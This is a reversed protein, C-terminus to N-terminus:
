SRSIVCDQVGRLTELDAESFAKDHEQEFGMLKERARGAGLAYGLMEGAAGACLTLFVPLTANWLVRRGLEARRAEELVRLFRLLPLIPSGATYVARKCFGWGFAREVAFVRSALFYERLAPGLSAYNLHCAVASPEQFLRYGKSLLDQHLVAEAELMEALGPGYDLLLDRRYCSHNAPLHRIEDEPRARMYPGYYVLFCGWSAACTPNANRVVPGVVAFDDRGHAEMLSEAWFEDPFTHDELFAVLPARAARVGAAKAEGATKLPGAEVIRCCVLSKLMESIGATDATSPTVLVCEMRSSVSQRCIRELTWRLPESNRYAVLVVSLDPAPLSQM